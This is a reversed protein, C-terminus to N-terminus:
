FVNMTWVHVMHGCTSHVLDISHTLITWIWNKLSERRSMELASGGTPKRLPDQPINPVAPNVRIKMLEEGGQAITKAPMWTDHIIVHSFITLCFHHFVTFRNQNPNTKRINLRKWCQNINNLGFLDFWGHCWYQVRITCLINSCIKPYRLSPQFVSFGDASGRQLRVLLGDQKPRGQLVHRGNRTFYTHNFETLDRITTTQIWNKRSFFNPGSWTQVPKQM